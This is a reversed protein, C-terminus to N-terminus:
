YDYGSCVSMIDALQFSDKIANYNFLRIGILIKESVFPVGSFRCLLSDFISAVSRVYRLASFCVLLSIWNVFCASPNNFCGM